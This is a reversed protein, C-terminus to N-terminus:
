VPDAPRTTWQVYDRRSGPLSRVEVLYRRLVDHRERPLSHILDELMRTVRTCVQVSDGGYDLVERLALHVWGDWTLRPIIVRPTGNQDRFVTEASRHEGVRHLIEHIRDLAVVAMGPANTGPSLARVAIDALERVGYAPDLAVARQAGLSVTEQLPFEVDSGTGVMRVLPTGVVVFEGLRVLIEVFTDNAHAWELCGEASIGVVLGSRPAPATTSPLTQLAETIATIDIAASTKRESDDETFRSDEEISKLTQSTITSVITELRISHAVRDLYNLFTLLSVGVALFAVSVTIVPVFALATESPSRVFWLGALAYAFTGLFIGMAAKSSRDELFLPLVRPTLQNSALQLVILTITFVLVALSLMSTAITAFLTRAGEASGSYFPYPLSTGILSRDIYAAAIALLFFAVLLLTPVFWPSEGLYEKIRKLRLM